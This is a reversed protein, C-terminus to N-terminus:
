APLRSVGDIAVASRPNRSFRTTLSAFRGEPLDKVVRDERFFLLRQSRRRVADLWKEGNTRDM